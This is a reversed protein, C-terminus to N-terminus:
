IPELMMQSWLFNPMKADKCLGDVMDNAFGGDSEAVSGMKKDMGCKHNSSHHSSDGLTNRRSLSPQKNMM